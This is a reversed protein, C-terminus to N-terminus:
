CESRAAPIPCRSSAAFPLLDIRVPNEYSTVPEFWVATVGTSSVVLSDEPEGYPALEVTNIVRDLPVAARALRPSASARALVLTVLLPYKPAKEFIWM